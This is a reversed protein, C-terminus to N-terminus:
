GASRFRGYKWGLGFVLSLVLIMLVIWSGTRAYPSGSGGTRIKGLLYMPGEGARSVIRGRSDVIMSSAESEAWVVPVCTEVARTVSVMPAYKKAGRPCTSMAPVVIFSAGKAVISGVLLPFYADYCIATGM